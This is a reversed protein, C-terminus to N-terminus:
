TPLKYLYNKQKTQCGQGVQRAGLLRGGGVGVLGRDGAGGGGEGVPLLLVGGRGLGWGRGGLLFVAM